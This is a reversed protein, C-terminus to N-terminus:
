LEVACALAASASVFIIMFGDGQSKVVVGDHASVRERALRNHERMVNLWREEDLRELMATSGEVDTFVVTMSGDPSTQGRFPFEAVDAASVVAALSPSTDESTPYEVPEV